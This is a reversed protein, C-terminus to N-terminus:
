QCQSGCPVMAECKLTGLRPKNSGMGPICGWWILKKAALNRLTFCQKAHGRPM